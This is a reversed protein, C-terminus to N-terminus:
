ESGREAYYIAANNQLARMVAGIPLDSATDNLARNIVAYKEPGVIHLFISKARALVPLTLTMRPYAADAPTIGLCAKEGQPNMVDQLTDSNKFYSATHGDTGMGLVVVDIAECFEALQVNLCQEAEYPTSHATKLAVFSAASAAGQLLNERVLRANSDSSSESVWREDVLTVQVSSWDLTQLRLRSFLEKPTAGGSVALRVVDRKGLVERMEQAIRQALAESLELNSSFRHLETATM